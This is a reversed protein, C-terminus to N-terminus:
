TSGIASRTRRAPAPTARRGPPESRRSLEVATLGVSGGSGGLGSSGVSSGCHSPPSGPSRRAPRNAALRSRSGSAIRAPRCLRVVDARHGSGLLRRADHGDGAVVQGFREWRRSVVSRPRGVSQHRVLRRAAASLHRALPPAAASLHRGVTSAPAATAASPLALEGPLVPPPHRMAAVHHPPDPDAEGGQRDDATAHEEEHRQEAVVVVAGTAGVRRCRGGALRCDSVVRTVVVTAGSVVSVTAVCALVAASVVSASGPSFGSVVVAASAVSGGSSVSGELSGLARRGRTWDVPCPPTRGRSPLM